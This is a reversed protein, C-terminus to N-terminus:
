SNFGGFGFEKWGYGLAYSLILMGFILIAIKKTLNLLSDELIGNSTAAQNKDEDKIRKVLKRTFFISVPISVIFAILCIEDTIGRHVYRYPLLTCMLYNVVFGVAIPLVCFGFFGIIFKKERLTYNAKVQKFLMITIQVVMFWYLYQVLFSKMM